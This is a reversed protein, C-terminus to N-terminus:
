GNKIRKKLEPVFKGWDCFLNQPLSDLDSWKWESCKEPEKGEPNGTWDLYECIFYLTIWHENKTKLFVDNTFTAFYIKEPYIIVGTEEEVERVATDKPTEGAIMGGGPLGWLDDPTRYGILIEQKANFIFVSVGTKVGQERAEKLPCWEPPVIPFLDENWVYETTKKEFGRITITKEKYIHLDNHNYINTKLSDDNQCTASDGWNDSYELEYYPCDKDCYEIKKNLIKM